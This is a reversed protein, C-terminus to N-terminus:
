HRGLSAERASDARLILIDSQDANPTVHLMARAHQHAATVLPSGPSCRFEPTGHWDQVAELQDEVLPLPQGEIWLTMACPHELISRAKEALDEM